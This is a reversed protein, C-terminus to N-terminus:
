CATRLAFCLAFVVISVPQTLRLTFRGSANFSAKLWADNPSPYGVGVGGDAEKIIRERM